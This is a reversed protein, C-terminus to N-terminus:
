FQRTKFFTAIRDAIKGSTVPDGFSQAAPDVMDVPLVASRAKLLDASFDPSFEPHPQMTIATQGYKLFANPCFDNGGLVEAGDPLETVQDQHWAIVHEDPRDDLHYVTNGLAWGGKFKEVTGGMAQALIQHGFCIGVVPVNAAMVERLFAELPKIWPHDEYAGHRSGTILWGDAQHVSTPLVRDVVAFTEFAFGHGDLMKRFLADYDGHRAQIEDPLHGTLLIGIKM